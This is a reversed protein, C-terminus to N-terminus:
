ETEHETEEGSTDHYEPLKEGGSTDVGMSTLVRECQSGCGEVVEIASDGNPKATIRVKQTM